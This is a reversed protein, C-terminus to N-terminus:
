NILFPSTPIIESFSSINFLNLNNENSFKQTFTSSNSLNFGSTSPIKFDM